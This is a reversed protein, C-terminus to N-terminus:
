APQVAAQQRAQTATLVVLGLIRDLQRANVAEMPLDCCIWVDGAQSAAFRLLPLRRNWWLLTGEALQGPGCVPAQIRFLGDRLALGLDLPWGASEVTLGWETDTLRRHDGPLESLFQDITEAPSQPM